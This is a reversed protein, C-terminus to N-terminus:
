HTLTYKPHVSLYIKPRATRITEKAGKMIGLEAGQTNIKIVDPQINKERCYTDLCIQRKKVANMSPLQPWDPGEPFDVVTNMTSDKSQQYFIVEDRDGILDGVVEVNDAKNLAIHRMLIPRNYVSPEFSFVRGGPAVMRSAPLAILGVHAGVDLVSKAGTAAEVIPHFTATKSHDGHREFNSFAFRGDLKFPGYPGIRMTTSFRMGFLSLIRLFLRHLQGLAKWLPAWNKLPGHRLRRIELLM